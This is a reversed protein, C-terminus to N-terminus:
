LSSRKEKKLEDIVESIYNKIDDEKLNSDSEQTIDVQDLLQQVTIEVNKNWEASGIANLFSQSENKIKQRLKILMERDYSVSKASYYLGVLVLYSALPMVSLTNLGFPPYPLIHLISIQISSYLIMIGVATMLLYYKLNTNDTNKAMFLLPLAFFFGGIQKTAGLVYFILSSFNPYEFILFNLINNIVFDTAIVYYILPLAALIWYKWKNIRRSYNTLYNKLFFSTAMWIFAFSILFSVRFVDYFMPKITSMMDWPNPIATVPSYRSEVEQVLGICSSILSLLFM